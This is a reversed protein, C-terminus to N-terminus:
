PEEPPPGITPGPGFSTKAVLWAKLEDPDFRISSGIKVFPISNSDTLRYVTSRSISLLDAVEGVTLFSLPDSM